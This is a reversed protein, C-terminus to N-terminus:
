PVFVIRQTRTKEPLPLKVDLMEQKRLDAIRL